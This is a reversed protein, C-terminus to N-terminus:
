TRINLEKLKRYLTTKGIGTQKALLSKDGNLLLLYKQLLEKEAELISDKFSEKMEFQILTDKKTNSIFSHDDLCEFLVKKFHNFDTSTSDCLISFRDLINFLERVNGKFRHNELITFLKGAFPSIAHFIEQNQVSLYSKIIPMIDEPRQRLPPIHIRLVNLRYFLDARFAGNDMLNNLEENAAAIVRINIPIVKDSGIRIVEKEQLVRLLRAQFSLTVSNIEDLFITGNHAIEFLGKKGKNSAGTFAGSEYGFLESELLNEPLAACNIAVFPFNKRESAQHISQAFLEKGTGTEGIILITSDTSAYKKAKEITHCMMKSSFSIDDFNSKAVFGKAEIQSRYKQEMKQIQTIDQIVYVNGTNVGKSYLPEQSISVKLNNLQIILNSNM